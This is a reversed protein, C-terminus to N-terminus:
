LESVSTDRIHSILGQPQEESEHLVARRLSPMSSAAQLSPLWADVGYHLLSRCPATGPPRLAEQMSGVSILRHYSRTRLHM